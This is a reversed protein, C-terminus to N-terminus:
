THPVSAQKLMIHPRHGPRFVPGHGDKLHGAFSSISTALTWSTPDHTPFAVIAFHRNPTKAEKWVM